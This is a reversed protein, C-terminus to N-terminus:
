VFIVFQVKVSAAVFIPGAPVLSAALLSFAALLTPLDKHPKTNGMSLIYPARLPVLGVPISGVPGASAREPCKSQTSRDDGTGSRTRANLATSRLKWLSDKRRTRLRAGTLSTAQETWRSEDYVTNLSTTSRVPTGVGCARGDPMAM